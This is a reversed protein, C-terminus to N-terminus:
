GTETTLVMQMVTLHVSLCVSHLGKSKGKLRASNMELMLGLHKELLQVWGTEMTLVKQMVTREVLSCAWSMEKPMEM